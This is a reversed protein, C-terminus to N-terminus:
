KAVNKANEPLNQSPLHIINCNLKKEKSTSIFLFLQQSKSSKEINAGFNESFLLFNNSETKKGTKQLHTSYIM